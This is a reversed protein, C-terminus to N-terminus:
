RGPARCGWHVPLLSDISPREDPSQVVMAIFTMALRSQGTQVPGVLASFQQASLGSADHLITGAHETFMRRLPTNDVEAPHIAAGKLRQRIGELEAVCQTLSALTGSRWSPIGPVELTGTLDEYYVLVRCMTESIPSLPVTVINDLHKCPDFGLRFRDFRGKWRREQFSKTLTNWAANADRRGIAEYFALVAAAAARGFKARIATAAAVAEETAQRAVSRAAPSLDVLPPPTPGSALYLRKLEALRQLSKPRIQKVGVGNRWRAVSRESVRLFHAVTKAQGWTEIVDNLLDPIESASVSDQSM